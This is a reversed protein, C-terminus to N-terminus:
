RVMEEIGSADRAADAALLSLTEPDMGLREALTSAPVEPPEDDAANSSLNALANAAWLVARIERGQGTADAAHHLRVAEFNPPQIRLLDRPSHGVFGAAAGCVKKTKESM